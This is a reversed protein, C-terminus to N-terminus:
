TGACPRKGIVSRPLESGCVVASTLGSMSGISMKEEGALYNPLWTLMFYFFYNGCFHGLFTGWACKVQLLKVISPLAAASKAEIRRGFHPMVKIWPLLWLLGGAGFVIFLLRWGLHVLLLGGVSAGIAPGWNPARM